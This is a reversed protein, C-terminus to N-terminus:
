SFRQKCFLITQDIESLMDGRLNFGTSKLKDIVISLDCTKEASMNRTIEPKYGLINHCREAIINAIDIVKKTEEGGVNFLGDGCKEENLTLFHSVVRCVDYISIFDRKQLGSSRLLLKNKTVAQKCLDNVLLTWRDVDISVPAGYGNSLRLVIGSLEKRDRAALVFDEAVKHSIAYPHTPRPLTAETIIGQLPSGYVHATSFYIFREVGQKKAANLLRLTGLGNVTLALEPDAASTIENVSALHIVARIGKCATVIDDDSLLDMPVVEVQRAWAPMQYDRQKTTIRLNYNTNEALYKSIRGGLYGLGGTILVTDNM